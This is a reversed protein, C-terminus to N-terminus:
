LMNIVYLIYLMNETINIVSFININETLVCALRKECCFKIKRPSQFTLIPSLYDQVMDSGVKFKQLMLLNNGMEM